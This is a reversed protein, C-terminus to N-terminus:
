RLKHQLQDTSSEGQLHWFVIRRGAAAQAKISSRHELNLVCENYKKLGYNHIQHAGQDIEHLTWLIVPHSLDVSTM